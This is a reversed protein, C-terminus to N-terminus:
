KRTLGWQALQEDTFQSLASLLKEQKSQRKTVYAKADFTAKDWDKAAPKEIKTVKGDANKTVGAKVFDRRVKILFHEAAAELLEAETLKSLDITWTLNFKAEDGLAPHASVHQMTVTKNDVNATTSKSGTDGKKLVKM